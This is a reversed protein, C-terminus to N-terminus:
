TILHEQGIHYNMDGAVMLLDEQPIDHINDSLKELFTRREKEPRGQQPAYVSFFIFFGGEVCWQFKRGEKM